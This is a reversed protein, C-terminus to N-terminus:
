SSRVQSTWDEWQGNSEVRWLKWVVPPRRSVDCGAVWLVDIGAGLDLPESPLEDADRMSYHTQMASPNVWVFLHREDVDMAAALKTRNRDLETTMAEAVVAPHSWWGSGASIEMASRGPGRLRTISEVGMESLMQAYLRLPHRRDWQVTALQQYDIGDPFHDRILTPVRKWLASPVATTTVSVRYMGPLGEVDRFAGGAAATRVDFLRRSEDNHSTVEIAYRRGRGTLLWDFRGPGLSPDDNVTAEAVLLEALIAAAMLEDPSMSFPVTTRGTSTEPSGTCRSHIFRLSGCPM